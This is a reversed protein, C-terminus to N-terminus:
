AAEEERMLQAVARELSLQRTHRKLEHLSGAFRVLGDLLFVIDDALEELDNIVHSTLVITRGRAREDLIKDKLTSSAVPDLGATPEDLILLEPSFLFALVANVKQRTGGSLTRLPKTLEAGLRFADILMRDLTATGGRLDSLLSILNDASLNEPFRASQPMYGISARYDPSDSVRRGDILVDGADARTLGLITKILTTKGAGNPGLIATVRGRGLALDIRQLVPLSGYRKALAVIHLKAVIPPTIDDAAASRM